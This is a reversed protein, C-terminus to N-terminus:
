FEGEFKFAMRKSRRVVLLADVSARATGCRRKLAVCPIGHEISQRKAPLASDFGVAEVPRRPFDITASRVAAKTEDNGHM